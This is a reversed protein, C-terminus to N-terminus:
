IDSVGLVIFLLGFLVVVGGFIRNFRKLTPIMITEGKKSAYHTLLLWYLMSGTFIATVVCISEIPTINGSSMGTASLAAVIWFFSGPNSFGMVLSKGADSISDYKNGAITRKYCKRVLMSAGVLAILIGGFIQIQMSYRNLFDSTISVAFLAMAAFLTDSLIAGIACGMGAKQGSVLSRQITLMVIPGVPISGLVGIALSKLIILLLRM